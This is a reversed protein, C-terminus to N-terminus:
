GMYKTIYQEFDKDFTGGSSRWAAKVNDRICYARIYEDWGAWQKKRMAASQDNYMLYAREFISFLMTLAIIEEKQQEATLAVPTKDPLDFIDLYPHTLCLREFELLKEDLADYTGNERDRREKMSARFYGFLGTPIGFLVTIFAMVELIDKGHKFSEPTLFSASWLGIFLTVEGCICLILLLRVM